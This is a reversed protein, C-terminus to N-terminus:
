KVINFKVHKNIAGEQTMLQLSLIYNGSVLSDTVEKWDLQGPFLFQRSKICRGTLDYIMYFGSQYTMPWHLNETQITEIGTVWNERGDFCVPVEKAQANVLMAACIIAMEKSQSLAVLPTTGAPINGTLFQIIFRAGQGTEKMTFMSCDPNLLYAIQECKVDKLTVDVATIPESIKLYLTDREIYLLNDTGADGTARLQDVARMELPTDLIINTTTVMDQVNIQDDAFTNAAAYNFVAYGPNSIQDFIYNLEQQTDQITVRNDMNADGMPYTFTFTLESGTAVGTQPTAVLRTGSPMTLFLSDRIVYGAATEDYQMLGCYNEAENYLKLDPYFPIDGAHYTFVGPLAQSLPLTLPQEQELTQHNLYFPFEMWGEINSIRNYSLDFDGMNTFKTVALPLTGTLQNHDLAVWNLQPDTVEGDFLHDLANTLQNDSLGLQQLYPMTFLSSPMEGKLGAQPLSIRIIHGEADFEVGHFSMRGITEKTLDWKPEITWNEGDTQEYLEKLVALDEAQIQVPTFPVDVEYVNNIYDGELLYKEGNLVLRFRLTERDDFPIQVTCSVEYSEDVALQKDIQSDFQLQHFETYSGDDGLLCEYWYDTWSAIEIPATGKNTVTATLTLEDKPKVPSKSLVMNTVQLDAVKSIKFTYTPSYLDYCPLQLKIRWHYTAEREFPYEYQDVTISQSYWRNITRSFVSSSEGDKWLEFTLDPSFNGGWVWWPSADWSFNVQEVDSIIGNDVPQPNLVEFSEPYVCILKLQTDVVEGNYVVDTEYYLYDLETTTNTFRFNMDGTGSEIYGTSLCPESNVFRWNYIFQDSVKSPSFYFDVNSCVCETTSLLAYYNLCVDGIYVPLGFVVVSNNVQKFQLFNDKSWVNWLKLYWDSSYRQFIAYHESSQAREKLLEWYDTHLALYDTADCSAELTVRPYGTWPMSILMDFLEETTQFNRLSVKEPNFTFDGELGWDEEPAITFSTDYSDSGFVNRVTLSVTHEGPTLSSCLIEPDAGVVQNDLKWEYTVNKQNSNIVTFQARNFLVDVYFDSSPMDASPDNPNTPNFTGDNLGQGWLLLPLLAFFIALSIRKM